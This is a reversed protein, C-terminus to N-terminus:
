FLLWEWLPVIKIPAGHVEIDRKDDMTVILREKVPLRRSLVALAETERELTSFDSVDVSAQVALGEEPVVFDVEVGNRYFFVRNRGFRRLLECAVLNEHLKSLPDTLMCRLFGTDAFYHKQVTVREPLTARYNSVSEILFAQQMAQLWKVLTPRTVPMHASQLVHLLRKLTMPQMVSEALKRLVFDLEATSRFGNRSAVDRLLVNDRLSQLWERKETLPFVPALGGWELYERCLRKIDSAQPSFATRPSVELGRFRLFERFSFPRIERAIFRAGLTTHIEASLMRANSGTLFVRHGSDALRRAFKEWGEINQMEDLFIRPRRESGFLEHYAKLLADFDAVDFGFLRDDEFNVYLIDEAEAEGHRLLRQIYEFLTYSKGARRLGTLVYNAEPDFAECRETLTKKPIADQNELIVEKIHSLTVAM